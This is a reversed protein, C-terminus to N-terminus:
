FEEQERELKKAAATDVFWTVKGKMERYLMAPYESISHDEELIHHVIEAKDEGSIMFIVNKANRFISPTLSIRDLGDPRQTAVCSIQDSASLSDSGPFLSATHGDTGVGLLVLDFSPIGESNPSVNQRITENYDKVAAEISSLGTNVPFVNTDPIVTSAILTERTMRYNSQDNDHSVWREDGWFLKVKDWEIDNVRPPRGLLRYMASPTGGGALAITCQGHDGISDQISVVVEDAVASAFSRTASIEIAIKSM